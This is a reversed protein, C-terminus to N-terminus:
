NLLSLYKATVFKSDYKKEVIQRSTECFRNYDKQKLEYVLNIKTALDNPNKSECFFGNENEIILNKCGKIKTTIIPRGISMAELLSKPTGENYYTPLVVCHSSQIYKKVNSVMGKYLLLKEDIANQLINIDISEKKEPYHRGLLIFEIDNNKSKLIHAAQIFDYVGKEVLLRAPMLVTFCSKKIKPSFPFKTINVGSGPLISSNPIRGLFNKFIISDDENQFLLHYSKSVIKIYIYRLIRAGIKKSKFTEGLGAINVIIKNNLLYSILSGYLNPKITYTLIFDPKINYLKFFLKFMIIIEYFINRSNPKFDLYINKENLKDLNTSYEDKTSITYIDYNKEKLEYVLDSRFNTINWATNTIIVIKTM